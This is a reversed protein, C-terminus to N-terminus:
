KSIYKSLTYFTILFRYAFIELYIVFTFIILLHQFHSCLTHVHIYTCQIYTLIVTPSVLPWDHGFCFSLDQGLSPWM